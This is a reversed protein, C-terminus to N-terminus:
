PRPIVALGGAGTLAAFGGDVDYIDGLGVQNLQAVLGETGAVSGCFLVIKQDAASRGLRSTLLPVVDAKAIIVAGALEGNKERGAQSRVDILLAGETVAQLAETGNLRSSQTM